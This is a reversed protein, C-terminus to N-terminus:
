LKDLRTDLRPHKSSIDWVTRQVSIAADFVQKSWPTEPVINGNEIAYDLLAQASVCEHIALMTPGADEAGKILGKRLRYRTSRLFVPAASLLDLHENRYWDDADKEQDEAPHLLVAVLCSGRVKATSRRCEFRQVLEYTRVESGFRPRGDVDFPDAALKKLVHSLWLTEVDKVRALLACPGGHLPKGNLSGRAAPSTNRLKWVLSVEEDNLLHPIVLKQLIENLRESDLSGDTAWITMWYLGETEGPGNPLLHSLLNSLSRRARISMLDSFTRFTSGLTTPCLHPGQALITRLTIVVPTLCIWNPSPPMPASVASPLHASLLSM